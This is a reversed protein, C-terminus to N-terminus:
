MIVKKKVKKEPNSKNVLIIDFLYIIVGKKTVEATYKPEDEDYILQIVQNSIKFEIHIPHKKRLNKSLIISSMKEKDLEEYNEDKGKEDDDNRYKPMLEGNQEGEFRFSYYGQMPIAKPDDIYGGGPLEINVVLKLKQTDIYYSYKPTNGDNKTIGMEDVIFKKLQIDNQNKVILKETGTEKDLIIEIDEKSLKNELIEESIKFLFVKSDELIEFKQRSPEQSIAQILYGIANKNYYTSYDCYDNIFLLHIINKNDKELYYKDFGSIENKQDYMQIEELEVNYLKKLTNEIYDNVDDKKYYNQLNHVVFLKKSERNNEQIALVESKVRAYLKQESLTISGVVLIIINSKWLIFQQIYFETILKDRSYEEFELQNKNIDKKDEETGKEQRNQTLLPTEQGASDLIALNQKGTKGYIISLGETKVNFGMPVDYKSLKKLLFSKGKNGNGVVGVVITKTQKSEEYLAKGKEKNYKIVWGENTLNKISDVCLVLDYDGEGNETNYRIGFNGFTKEREKLMNNEEQLKINESYTEEVKQTLKEKETKNLNEKNQFQNKLVNAENILKNVKENNNKKIQNIESNLSEIEKNDKINKTNLNQIKSNLRNINLSLDNIEKIKRRQEDNLSKNKSIEEDYLNKYKTMESFLYDIIEKENGIYITGNHKNKMLYYDNLYFNNDRVIKEEYSTYLNESGFDPIYLEHANNTTYIKKKDDSKYIYDCENCHLQIYDNEELKFPENKKLHYWGKVMYQLNSNKNVKRCYSFVIEHEHENLLTLSM